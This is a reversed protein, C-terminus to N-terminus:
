DYIVEDPEEIYNPDSMYEPNDTAEPHEWEDHVLSVDYRVRNIAYGTASFTTDGSPTGHYQKYGDPYHLACDTYPSTFSKSNFGGGYTMVDYHPGCVSGGGTGQAFDPFTAGGGPNVPQPGHGLGVAHGMEHMWTDAGCGNLFTLYRNKRKHDRFKSTQGAFGCLGAGAAANIAIFDAPPMEGSEIKDHYMMSYPNENAYTGVLRLRVYINWQEFRKNVTDILQTSRDL